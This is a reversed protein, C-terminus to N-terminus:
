QRKQWIQMGARVLYWVGVALYAVLLFLRGSSRAGPQLLGFYLGAAIMLPGITLNLWLPPNWRPGRLPRATGGRSPAVDNQTSPATFAPGPEEGRTRRRQPKRRKGKQVPM